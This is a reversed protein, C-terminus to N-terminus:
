NTAPMSSHHLNIRLNGSSDVIYGFTYEVKVEDGEPTHPPVKEVDVDFGAMSMVEDFNAAKSIDVGILDDLMVLETKGTFTSM